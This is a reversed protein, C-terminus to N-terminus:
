LSFQYLHTRAHLVVAMALPAACPCGHFASPTDHRLAALGGWVWATRPSVAPCLSSSPRM